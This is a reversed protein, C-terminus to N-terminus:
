GAPEDAFARWSPWAYPVTGRGVIRQPWEAPPQRLPRPEDEVGYFLHHERAAFYWRGDRREYADEYAIAQRIWREEDGLEALCHVTGHARDADLLNIVHGGILTFGVHGGKGARFASAFQQALAARGVGGDWSRFDEVFLEALGAFDRADMALAYRAALQRIEEYALLREVDGMGAPAPPRRPGCPREADFALPDPV